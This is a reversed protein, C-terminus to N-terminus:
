EVESTDPAASTDPPAPDTPFFERPLERQDIIVPEDGEEGSLTEVTGESLTITGNETRLTYRAAGEELTGSFRAGAGEPVLSREQFDLDQVRIDGATTEASIEGTTGRPLVLLLDGNRTTLRVTGDETFGRQLGAEIAGNRTEVDASNRLGGLRVDGNELRVEVPGEVGSLVVPGSDLTIRLPANRPVTGEVDIASLEPEEARLSFRYVEDDGVEDVEVEELREAVDTTDEGRVRKVFTLQANEEDTGSLRVPGHFGEIVLTRGELRVGRELVLSDGVAGAVLHGESTQDIGPDRDSQDCSALLLALVLFTAM